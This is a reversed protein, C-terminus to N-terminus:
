RERRISLFRRWIEDKVFKGDSSRIKGIALVVDRWTDVFIKELNERAEDKGTFNSERYAWAFVSTTFYFSLLLQRDPAVTRVRPVNWPCSTGIAIKTPHVRRGKGRRERRKWRHGVPPM